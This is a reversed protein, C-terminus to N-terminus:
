KGGKLTAPSLGTDFGDRVTDISWAHAPCISLERQEDNGHEDTLTVTEVHGIAFGPCSALGCAVVDTDTFATM